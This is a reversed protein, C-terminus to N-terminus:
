PELKVKNGENQSKNIDENRIKDVLQTLMTPATPVDMMTTKRMPVVIGNSDNSSRSDVKRHTNLGSPPTFDALRYESPNGFDSTTDRLPAPVNNMTHSSTADDYSSLMGQAGMVEKLKNPEQQLSQLRQLEVDQTNNEAELLQIREEYEELMQQAEELDDNVEINVQNM